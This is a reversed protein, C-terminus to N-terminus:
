KDLEKINNKIINITEKKLIVNKIIIKKKFFVLKNYFLYCKITM